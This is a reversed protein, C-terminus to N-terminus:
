RSNSANFMVFVLGVISLRRKCGRSDGRFAAPAQSNIVLGSTPKGSLACPQMVAIAGGKEAPPGRILLM